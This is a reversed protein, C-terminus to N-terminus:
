SLTNISELIIVHYGHSLKKLMNVFNCFTVMTKKMDTQGTVVRSGSSPNNQFKINSYKEFFRGM